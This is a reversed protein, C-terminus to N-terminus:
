SRETTSNWRRCAGIPNFVPVESGPSYLQVRTVEQKTVHADLGTELLAIRVVRAYPSGVSYFLRM